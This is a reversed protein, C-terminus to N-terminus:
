RDFVEVGYEATLDRIAQHDDPDIRDVREFYEGFHGPIITVTLRAPV